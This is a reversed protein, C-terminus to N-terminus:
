CKAAMRYQTDLMLVGEEDESNTSLRSSYFRNFLSQDFRNRAAYQKFSFM